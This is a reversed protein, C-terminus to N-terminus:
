ENSISNKLNIQDINNIIIINKRSTHDLKKEFYSFHLESLKEPSSLYNFELQLLEAINNLYNINYPDLRNVEKLDRLAEKINGRDENYAAHLNLARVHLNKYLENNKTGKLVKNVIKLSEEVKKSKFLEIAEDYLEEYGM